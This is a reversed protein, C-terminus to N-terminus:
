EAKIPAIGRNRLTAREDEPEEPEDIRAKKSPPEEAAPSGNAADRKVVEAESPAQIAEATASQPITSDMDSM